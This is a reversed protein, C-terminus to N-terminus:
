GLAEWSPNPPLDHFLFVFIEFYRSFFYFFDRWINCYDEDTLQCYRLLTWASRCEQINQKQKQVHPNKPIHFNIKPTGVDSFFQYVRYFM